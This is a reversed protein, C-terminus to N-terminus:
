KKTAALAALNFKELWAERDAATFTTTLSRVQVQYRDAVLIATGQSGSTAALHGAIRKTADKYKDRASPNADTDSISLAATM